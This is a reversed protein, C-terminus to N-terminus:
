NHTGLPQKRARKIPCSKTEIEDEEGDEDGDDGYRKKLKLVVDTLESPNVVPRTLIDELEQLITSM